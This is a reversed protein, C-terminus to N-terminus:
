KIGGGAGKMQKGASTNIYGLIKSFEKNKLLSEADILVSSGDLRVGHISHSKRCGFREKLVSTTLRKFGNEKASQLELYEFHGDIKKVIASHRGAALYYEKGDVCKKLLETATQFDNTGKAVDGHALEAIEKIASTKSFVECSKGGRFDSVDFGGRNGIYTLAVSSCSGSTRDGGGVKEIIQITDLKKKLKEVPNYDIGSSELRKRLPSPEDEEEKKWGAWEAFTMDKIATREGTDLSRARRKADSTDVGDVEAILTCRCNYVMELAANPDGPYMIEYGAVEFPKDNDRVQGDLAAHTHRTRGDLTAVWQKKLKIGMEEARAYSDMRGANQAGTVATRAARIASNRNMEPIHNQLRDALHKISEGQLIGSTVTSTIKLKGKQLDFGRKKALFDSYYPMLDPQEVILRRVTQEDLLDFGVDHGIDREISYASFNRNLSYIGPTADYTYAQTVDWANEMRLAIRDRLAKFRKGRGIQAFRWQKYDQETYKKGNVTEGILAKQEADRKKLQEFYADIKDQLEEAAKKYEAAIRRELKELKADALVHAEDPKM